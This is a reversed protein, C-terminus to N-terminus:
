CGGGPSSRFLPFTSLDGLVALNAPSPILYWTWSKGVSNSNCFEYQLRLEYIQGTSLFSESRGEWLLRDAPSACATVQDNLTAPVWVKCSRDCKGKWIWWRSTSYTLIHCRFPHPGNRTPTKEVGKSHCVKHGNCLGKRLAWFRTNLTIAEKETCRPLKPFHAGDVTQRPLLDM